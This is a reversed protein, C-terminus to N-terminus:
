SPFGMARKGEELGWVSQRGHRLNLVVLGLLLVGDLLADGLHVGDVAVILAALTAVGTELTTELGAVDTRGSIGDVLGEPKHQDRDAEREAIIEM